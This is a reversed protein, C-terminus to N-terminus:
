TVSDQRDYVVVGTKYIEKKFDESITQPTFLDYVFPLYKNIPVFENPTEALIDIDSRITCRSTVSSGFLIIRDVNEDVSLIADIMARVKPQQLPYVYRCNIFPDKICVNWIKKNSTNNKVM